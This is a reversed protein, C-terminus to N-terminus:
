NEVNSKTKRLSNRVLQEEIEQEQRLELFNVMGEKSYISDSDSSLKSVSEECQRTNVLVIRYVMRQIEHKSSVYFISLVFFVLVFFIIAILIFSKMVKKKNEILKKTFGYSLCISAKNKQSTVKKCAAMCINVTACKSEMEQLISGLLPPPSKGIDEIISSRYKCENQKSVQHKYIPQDISAYCFIKTPKRAKIESDIDNKAEYLNYQTLERSNIKFLLCSPFALFFLIFIKLHPETSNM